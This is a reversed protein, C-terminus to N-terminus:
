DTDPVAPYLDREAEDDDPINFLTGALHVGDKIGQLYLYENELAHKHHHRDEWESFEPLRVIDMNSFLKQFAKDEEERLKRIEPHRVIRAAVCDMREQIARQFWPPFGM